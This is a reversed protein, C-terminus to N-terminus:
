EGTEPQYAVLSWRPLRNVAHLAADFVQEATAQAAPYRRPMIDPYEPTKGTEVVNVVPWSSLISLVVVALVAVGVVGIIMLRRM